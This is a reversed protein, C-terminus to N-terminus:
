LPRSILIEDERRRGRWMMLGGFVLALAAASTAALRGPGTVPLHAPDVAAAVPTSEAPAPAPAPTVPAT